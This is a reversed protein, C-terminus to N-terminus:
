RPQAPRYGMVASKRNAYHPFRTHLRNLRLVEQNSDSLGCLRLMGGHATIRKHLRVVAGVVSSRLIALEDLELVLRYIFEQNLLGWLSDALDFSDADCGPPAHLRVFLWEPGHDLELKWGQEMKLMM